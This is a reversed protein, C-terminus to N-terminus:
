HRCYKRSAILPENVTIGMVQQSFAVNESNQTQVGRPLSEAKIWRVTKCLSNLFYLNFEHVDVSTTNGQSLHELLGKSCSEKAAAQRYIEDETRYRTVLFGTNTQCWTVSKKKKDLKRKPQKPLKPKQGKQLVTCALDLRTKKYKLTVLPNCKTTLLRYKMFTDRSKVSQCYYEYRRSIARSNTLHQSNIKRLWQFLESM